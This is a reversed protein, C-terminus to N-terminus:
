RIRWNKLISCQLILHLILLSTGAFEESEITQIPLFNGHSFEQSKKFDYNEM